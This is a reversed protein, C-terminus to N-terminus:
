LLQVLMNLSRETVLLHVEAKRVIVATHFNIMSVYTQGKHWVIDNKWVNTGLIILQYTRQAQLVIYSTDKTSDNICLNTLRYFM